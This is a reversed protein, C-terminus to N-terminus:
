LSATCVCPAWSPARHHGPPTPHPPPHSAWSSLSVHVSVASEHQQRASVFVANHISTRQNNIFTLKFFGGWSPLLSILSSLPSMTLPWSLLTFSPQKWSSAVLVIKGNKYSTIHKGPKESPLADAPLAPSRPEIGPNPLDGPFPFPFPLGSWYEQRSFEMSVQYAVTWPIAFLQVCSLLKVPESPLATEWIGLLSGAVSQNIHSCWIHSCLM